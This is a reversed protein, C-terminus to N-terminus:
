LASAYADTFDQWPISEESYLTDGDVKGTGVYKFVDQVNARSDPHLTIQYGFIGESSDMFSHLCFHVNHKRAIEQLDKEKMKDYIVAFRIAGKISPYAHTVPDQKVSKTYLKETRM